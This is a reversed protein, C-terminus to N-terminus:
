NEPIAAVYDAMSATKVLSSGVTNVLALPVKSFTLSNMPLSAGTSASYVSDTLAVEM